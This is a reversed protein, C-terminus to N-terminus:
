QSSKNVAMHYVCSWSLIFESNEEEINEVERTDERKDKEEQSQSRRVKFGFLACQCFYFLSSLCGKKKM